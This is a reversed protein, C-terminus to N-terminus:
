NEKTIKDECPLTIQIDTQDLDRSGADALGIWPVLFFAGGVVDWQGSSNMHHGIARHVTQCNKDSVVVSVAQDRPVDASANGTGKLNGNIFIEATEPQASVTLNQVKPNFTSCGGLLILISCRAFTLVM